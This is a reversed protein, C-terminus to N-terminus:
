LGVHRIIRQARFSNTVQFVLEASIEAGYMEQFTAVIDRTSMGKASLSLIQEDMGTIRSQVKEILQPEFTSNRDRPTQLKFEGHDGKHKKSSCDNRSNGSHNGTSDNKDYNIHHNM